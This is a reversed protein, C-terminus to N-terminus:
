LPWNGILEGVPLLWVPGGVASKNQRHVGFAGDAPHPQRPSMGVGLRRHVGCAVAAPKGDGLGVPLSRLPSLMGGYEINPLRKPTGPTTPVSTM